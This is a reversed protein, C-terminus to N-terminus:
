RLEKIPHKGLRHPSPSAEVQYVSTRCNSCVIQISNDDTIKVVFGQVASATTRESGFAIMAVGTKGCSPCKLKVKTRAKAPM